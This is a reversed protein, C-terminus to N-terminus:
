HKTRKRGGKDMAKTVSDVLGNSCFPKEIYDCVGRALLCTKSATGTATLVVIPIDNIANMLATKKVFTCGDMGPMKLDLLIADLNENHAIEIAEEATNTTLVNFGKTEFLFKLMALIQDDDDVILLTSDEEIM